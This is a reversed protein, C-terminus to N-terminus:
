RATSALVTEAFWRDILRLEYALPQDARGRLPHQLYAMDAVRDEGQALTRGGASLSWRLTLSPWDARGTAVRVEGLRRTPRMQGALDVDTLEVKLAQGDPLRGALSALHKSLIEVNREAQRFENKVDNIYNYTFIAGVLLSLVTALVQLPSAPATEFGCARAYEANLYLPNHELFTTAFDQCLGPNLTTGRPHVFVAGDEFDELYRGYGPARVGDPSYLPATPAKEAQRGPEFARM